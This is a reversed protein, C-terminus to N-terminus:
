VDDSEELLELLVGSRSAKPHIFAVPCGEAGIEATKSILRVGAGDLEALKADISPVGLCVHHVGQGRTELFRSIQSGEGMPEMLELLSEGCPLMAVRLGREPVEVMESVELGLQDRYFSLAEAISRVAIGIHAIKTPRNSDQFHSSM